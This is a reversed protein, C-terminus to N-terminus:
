HETVVAVFSLTWSKGFKAAARSADGRARTRFIKTFYGQAQLLTDIIPLEEKVKMKGAVPNVIILARKSM